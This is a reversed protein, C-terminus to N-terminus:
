RSFVVIQWEMKTQHFIRQFGLRQLIDEVAKTPHIFSRYPSSSLSIFFNLTKFILKTWWAEIPYVVAFFKNALSASSEVLAPMDDYCCIVRVLSVIDAPQLEAAHEVIDGYHFTIQNEVGQRAAEEKSVKIYGSSADVSTVESVGNKLLEFQVQGVGGGIDLLSLDNVGEKILADILLQTVKDPGKKIYKKLKKRASKEDFIQEIGDCQCSTM